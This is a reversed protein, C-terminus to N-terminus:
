KEPINSLRLTVPMGQRLSGDSDEVVVRMRYVLSTRLEKTEVSKPTFEASPAVFGVTGKYAHDPKGDTFLEVKTGPPFKGLDPESVYARVWVPKELSLSLVTAGAQVIAGSEVARTILVADSPSKLVTDALQIQATGVTAKAQDVAANAADIEEQRYGAELQNLNAEALRVRQIAENRAAEANEYDQKSVSSQKVLDAQRRYAREANDAAVRNQALTARAQEIEEPRYGAKKLRAQAEASALAAKAQELARQYPEQDIRALIDGAKVVDGEDKLVEVVRGSVRFGLDVGRIDVNGHLQLPEHAPKIRDFYYWLGGGIAALLLIVPIIKKM